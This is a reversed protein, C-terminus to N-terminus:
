IFILSGEFLWDFGCVSVRALRISCFRLCLDITTTWQTMPSIRSCAFKEPNLNKHHWCPRLFLFCFFLFLSMFLKTTTSHSPPLLKTSFNDFSYFITLWAFGFISLSRFRSYWSCVFFSLRNHRASTMM